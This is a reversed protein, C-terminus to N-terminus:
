PGRRSEVHAGEGQAPIAPSALETTFKPPRVLNFIITGVGAILLTASVPRYFFGFLDYHMIQMSKVFAAEGLDGLIVGLVIGAVSYGTRRLLYGVIGAVFMVWVDLILNRLAYAGITALLLIAPAFLRFPIRLLQVTTKTQKYSHLINCINAM